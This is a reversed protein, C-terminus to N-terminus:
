RAPQTQPPPRGRGAAIIGLWIAVYEPRNPMMLCVVEGRRLDQALAWRAYRNARAALAGYTLTEDDSTLAPRARYRAALEAMLLPFVRTPNRAIPTTHRLARWVGAAFRADDRLRDFVNM